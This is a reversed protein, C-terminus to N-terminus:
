ARMHKLIMKLRRVAPGDQDGDLGDKEKEEIEAKAAELAPRLYGWVEDHYREQVGVWDAAGPLYAVLTDRLSDASAATAEAHTYAAPDNQQLFTDIDPVLSMSTFHQQQQQPHMHAADGSALGIERRFSELMRVEAPTLPPPAAAPDTDVEAEDMGPDGHGFAPDFSTDALLSVVAAGDAAGHEREHQAREWASTYERQVPDQARQKGKWRGTRGQLDPGIELETYTDTDTNTNAYSGVFDEASLGPLMFGGQPTSGTTSRFSAEGGRSSPAEGRTGAAVGRASASIDDSVVSDSGTRAISSSPGATKGNTASALTQAVDPAPGPGQLASRALGAASSQIRTALSHPAPPERTTSPSPSNSSPQFPHSSDRSPAEPADPQTHDPRTDRPGRMNAPKDAM